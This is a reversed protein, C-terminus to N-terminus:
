LLGDEYETLDDEREILGSEAIIEVKQLDDTQIDQWFLEIGSQTLLVADKEDTIEGNPSLYGNNGHSYTLKIRYYTM